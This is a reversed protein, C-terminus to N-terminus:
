GCGSRGRRRDCRAMGTRMTIVTPISLLCNRGGVHCVVPVRKGSGEHLLPGLLVLGRVFKRISSFRRRLVHSLLLRVPLFVMLLGRVHRVHTSRRRVTIIISRLIILYNRPRRVHVRGNIRILCFPFRLVFIRYLVLHLNRRFILIRTSSNRTIRTILRTVLLRVEPSLRGARRNVFSRVNSHQGDQRTFDRGNPGYLVFIRLLTRFNSIFYSNFRRDRSIIVTAGNVGKLELEDGRM